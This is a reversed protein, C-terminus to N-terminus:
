RIATGGDCVASGDPNITPAALIMTGVTDAECLGGITTAENTDPLQLLQVRGSYSRLAERQATGFFDASSAAPDDSPMSVVTYAYNTTDAIGASLTELSDAFAGKELYYAQQSRLMASMYLKAESQKAKSAQNLFTPLAIASLIGIIIIVVLVEILTFGQTNASRM